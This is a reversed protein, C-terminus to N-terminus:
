EDLKKLSKSLKKEAKSRNPKENMANFLDPENFTRDDVLSSEIIEQIEETTILKEDTVNVELSYDYDDVQWHFLSLDDEDKYETVKIDNNITFTDKEKYSDSLKKEIDQIKYSLTDQESLMYTINIISRAGTDLNYINADHIVARKENITPFQIKGIDLSFHEYFPDYVGDTETRLTAGMSQVMKKTFGEKENGIHLLYSLDEDNAVVFYDEDEENSYKGYMAELHDHEIDNKEKLHENMNDYLSSGFSTGAEFRFSTQQDPIRYLSSYGFTEELPYYAIQTNVNPYEDTIFGLKHIERQAKLGKELMAREDLAQEEDIIPLTEADKDISLGIEEFEEEPETMLEEIKSCSTVVFLSMVIIVFLSKKM